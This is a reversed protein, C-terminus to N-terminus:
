ETCTHLSGFAFYLEWRRCICSITYKSCQCWGPWCPNPGQGRRLGTGPSQSRHLVGGSGRPPPPPDQPRVNNSIRAAFGGGPDTATQREAARASVMAYGGTVKEASWGPLMFPFSDDLIPCCNASHGAKGCFFCVVM